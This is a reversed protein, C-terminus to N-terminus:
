YITDTYIIFSHLGVCVCVYVYVRARAVHRAFDDCTVPLKVDHDNIYVLIARARTNPVYTYVRPKCVDTGRM